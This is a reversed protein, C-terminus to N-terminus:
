AYVGFEEEFERRMRTFLDPYRNIIENVRGMPTDFDTATETQGATTTTAHTDDDYYNELKSEGDPTDVYRSGSKGSTKVPSLLGEGEAEELAAFLKRYYPIRAYIWSLVLGFLRYYPNDGWFDGAESIYTWGVGPVYEWGEDKFFTGLTLLFESSLLRYALAEAEPDAHLSQAESQYYTPMKARQTARAINEAFLTESSTPLFPFLGSVRLTIREPPTM